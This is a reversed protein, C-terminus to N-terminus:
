LLFGYEAVPYPLWVAVTTMLKSKTIPFYSNNNEVGGGSNATSVPGTNNFSVNGGIPSTCLLVMKALQKLVAISTTINTIFYIYSYIVNM